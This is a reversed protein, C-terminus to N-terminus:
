IGAAAERVVPEACAADNNKVLNVRSSVEYRRMLAPNFLKLLDCVADTKEYGPDLWLDYGDDPLIVPMRDHVDQLLANPTTTIISCTEVLRGEPNKWQEWLGAFAFISDDAMTFCFPIKTKGDKKWEYFGDAPILCRRKKLADRFSPKTAVTEARANIM